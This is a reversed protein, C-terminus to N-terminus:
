AAKRFLTRKVYGNVLDDLKHDINGIIMEKGAELVIKAADLKRTFGGNGHHSKGNCMGYHSDEVESVEEILKGESDLFGDYRGLVILRDAGVTKLVRAALTDNDQKIEEFDVGDNYNIITHTGKQLNFEILEKVHNEYQLDTNTVLLQSTNDGLFRMYFQMLMTQGICAYRQLEKAELESNQRADHFHQKALAIAGSVVLVAKDESKTIEYIKKGITAYDKDGNADFLCASGIKIVNMM